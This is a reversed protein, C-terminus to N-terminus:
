HLAAHLAAAIWRGIQQDAVDATVRELLGASEARRIM